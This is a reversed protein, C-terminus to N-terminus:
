KGTSESNITTTTKISLPVETDRVTLSGKLTLITESSKVLGTSITIQITGEQEGTLNVTATNNQIQLVQDKLEIASKSVIEAIGKDVSKFTYVTKVPVPMGANLTDNQEWTENIVIPKSPYIKFNQTIANKFIDQSFYDGSVNKFAQADQRAGALRYMKNLVADTGTLSKIEGAPTIKATVESGILVSLLKNAESYPNTSDAADFEVEDNNTKVKGKYESFRVGLGYINGSDKQISYAVKMTTESIKEIKEGKLEQTTESNTLITYSTKFGSPVNLKLSFTANKETSSNNNSCASLFITFVCCCKIIRKLISAKDM